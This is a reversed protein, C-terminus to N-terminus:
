SHKFPLLSKMKFDLWTSFISMFRNTSSVVPRLNIREKHVKPIGYFIPLRHHLKFSRQFYIKEAQSLINLINTLTTKLNNVKQTAAEQALQLYSASLLHETLIQKLYTDKHMVAPGLNKYTPIIEQNTKIETLIRLQTHTLNCLSSKNHKLVWGNHSHKLAKKLSTIKDEITLTAPPPSWLQNRQYIQKIYTSNQSTNSIKLAERTRIFYALNRITKSIVNPLTNSAICFKLNLGLLLKTDPPLQGPQALNHFTLNTPLRPPIATGGCKIRANICLVSWLTQNSQHLQLWCHVMLFQLVVPFPLTTALLLWEM